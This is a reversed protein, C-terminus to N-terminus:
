KTTLHALNEVEDATNTLLALSEIEEAPKKTKTKEKKPHHPPHPNLSMQYELRDLLDARTKEM